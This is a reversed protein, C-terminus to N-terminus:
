SWLRLMPAPRADAGRKLRAKAVCASVNGPGRHGLAAKGIPPPDGARQQGRLIRLLV